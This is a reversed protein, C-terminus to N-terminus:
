ATERQIKRTTPRGAVKRRPLSVNAGGGRSTAPGALQSRDFSRALDALTTQKMTKHLRDNESEILRGLACARGACIQPDLLCRHPRLPEGGAAEYVDLLTIAKPDRALRIGGKPGRETELLGAHVLRQVVKAFHNYSFGLNKAIEPSPRFPRDGADAIWLCTHLAISLGEPVNLLGPM